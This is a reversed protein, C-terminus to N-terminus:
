RPVAAASDRDAETQSRERDSAATQLRQLDLTSVDLRAYRPRANFMPIRVGFGERLWAAPVRGICALHEPSAPVELGQGGPSYVRMPQSHCTTFGFSPWASLLVSDDQPRYDRLAISVGYWRREADTSIFLADARGEEGLAIERHEGAGACPTLALACVLALFGARVPARLKGGSPALSPRATPDAPNAPDPPHSGMFM